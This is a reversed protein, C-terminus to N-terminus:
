SKCALGMASSDASRSAFTSSISFDAEVEIFLSSTFVSFASNSARLLSRSPRVFSNDFSESLRFTLSALDASNACFSSLRLDLTVFRSAM